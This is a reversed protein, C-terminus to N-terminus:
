LGIKKLDALFHQDPQATFVYLQDQLTFALKEAHLFLRKEGCQAAVSRNFTKDGYKTDGIIPHGIYAAHVRIQHMRGTLLNARVLSFQGFHSIPDFITEANKGNQSVVIIKEGGREIKDLNTKIHQSKLFHGKVLLQYEKKIDHKRFLNQLALLTLRNKALLLCGSTDRDLRHALELSQWDSQMSRLAEVLGLNIESGGHVALGAPKNIVIFDKNEFVVASKLLATLKASPKPIIPMKSIRIPPIRVQDKEKLKYSADVRKKNVRVEGKRLARYLRSHPVGKLQLMLFNDIRQGARDFEITIIKSQM